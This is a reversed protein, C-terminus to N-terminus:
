STASAPGGSLWAQPISGAPTDGPFDPFLRRALKGCPRDDILPRLDALTQLLRISSGAHLDAANPQATGLLGEEIFRDARDLHDRLNALDARVTVDDARNLRREFAAVLPFSPKALPIPLPLKAGELYSLMAERNRGLTNWVVRRAVSQLTDDGWDEVIEVRARLEEDAPLLPPDPVRRDLERVIAKSGSVKTGDEFRVAPVHRSGFRARMLPVHLGTILEVRQYPVGKLSLAKEMAAAPHSAPVAYLKTRAMGPMM